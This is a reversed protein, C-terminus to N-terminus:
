FDIGRVVKEVLDIKEEWMSYVIFGLFFFFLTRVGLDAKM